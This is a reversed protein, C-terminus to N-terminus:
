ITTTDFILGHYCLKIFDIVGYVKILYSNYHLFFKLVIEYVLTLFNLVSRQEQLFVLAFHVEVIQYVLLV